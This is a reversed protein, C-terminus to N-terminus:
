APVVGSRLWEGSRRLGEELEVVPRWGLEDRALSNSATGRRDVLTIGHRGFDPPRGRARAVLEMVSALATLAVRPLKRPPKGGAVEALRSFYDHFSVPEGDWVTYAHGPIGRRLGLLISEVLDDIYVPLMTGDGKGPLAMQGSKLLEAPRVLWPASGPGYVDGPRIVVAGRRCAIRDSAGKTDIYPIGVARRSASEDLEGEATYGYVVVSSLHVVRQAGAADAADLVNVTGRVNVPIFEEMSGWERVHAATHVVLEADALARAISAPDAIDATRFEAGSEAVRPELSPDIDVAVVEAGEAALRRCTASGIFGGAGTVAARRGSIKIEATERRGDSM